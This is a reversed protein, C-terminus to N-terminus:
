RIVEDARLLLDQPMHIRMAKAVRLDIVLEITSIQDIPLESPKAGKLIKDVYAAVKREAERTTPGYSMLADDDRAGKFPFVAPLKARRAARGVRERNAIFSLDNSILLGDHTDKPLTHLAVDLEHADRAQSAIM